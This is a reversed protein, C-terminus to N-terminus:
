SLGSGQSLELGVAEADGCGDRFGWCTWIINELVLCKITQQMHGFQCLVYCM